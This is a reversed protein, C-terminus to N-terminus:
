NEVQFERLKTYLYRVQDYEFPSDLAGYRFPTQYRLDIAWIGWTYPHDSMYDRHEMYNVGNDIMWDVAYGTGDRLSSPGLFPIVLYPGAPVGYHGLTQGFDEKQAPLDMAKAVDFMGGVGIISNFLLRATTQASREFKLQLLNNVLYPIDRLNNTVNSVGTRVFGPTAWVYGRVVPLYVYRDFEANFRYTLRNMGELPDQVNLAGLSSREFQFRNDREDLDLETLPDHYAPFSLSSGNASKGSSVYDTDEAASATNYCLCSMLGILCAKNM